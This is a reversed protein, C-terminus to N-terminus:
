NYSNGPTRLRLVLTADFQPGEHYTEGGHLVLGDLRDDWALPSCQHRPHLPACSAPIWGDFSGTLVGRVVGLGELM